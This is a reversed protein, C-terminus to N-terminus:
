RSIKLRLIGKSMISGGSLFYLDIQDASKGGEARNDFEISSIATLNPRDRKLENSWKKSLLKEM